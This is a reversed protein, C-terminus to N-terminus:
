DHRRRQLERLTEAALAERKAMSAFVASALLLAVAIGALILGRNLAAPEWTTGLEPPCGARAERGVRAAEAQGRNLANFEAMSANAHCISRDLAERSGTAEREPMAAFLTVGAVLAVVLAAVRAFWAVQDTM